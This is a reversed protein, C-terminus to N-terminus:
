LAYKDLSKQHSPPLGMLIPYAAMDNRCLGSVCEERGEERWGGENEKGRPRGEERGGEKWVREKM